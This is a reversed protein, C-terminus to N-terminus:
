RLLNILNHLMLLTNCVNKTSEGGKLVFIMTVCVEVNSPMFWINILLGLATSFSTEREDSIGHM